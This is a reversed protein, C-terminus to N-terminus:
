KRTQDFKGKGAGPQQAPGKNITSGAPEHRTQDPNLGGQKLGPAVNGTKNTATGTPIGTKKDRSQDM